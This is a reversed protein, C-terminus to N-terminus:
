CHWSKHPLPPSLSPIDARGAMIGMSPSHRFISTKFGFDPRRLTLSLIQLPNKKKSEGMWIEPLCKDRQAGM